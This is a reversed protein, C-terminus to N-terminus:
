INLNTKPSSMKTLEGSEKSMPRLVESSNFSAAENSDNLFVNETTAGPLILAIVSLNNM